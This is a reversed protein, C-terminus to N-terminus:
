FLNSLIDAIKSAASYNETIYESEKDIFFNYAEKISYNKNEQYNMSIRLLKEQYVKGVSYKSIKYLIFFVNAKQYSNNLQWILACILLVKLILLFFSKTVIVLISLFRLINSPRLFAILLSNFFKTAIIKAIVNNRSTLLNTQFRLISNYSEGSIFFIIFVFTNMLFLFPEYSSIPILYCILLAIIIEFLIIYKQLNVKKESFIKVIVSYNISSFVAMIYGRIINSIFLSFFSTSYAFLATTFLNFLCLLSVLRYSIQDLYKALSSSFAGALSYVVLAFISAVTGFKSIKMFFVKSLLINTLYYFFVFMLASFDM